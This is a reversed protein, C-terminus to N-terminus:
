VKKRLVTLSDGVAIRAVVSGVAAELKLQKPIESSPVEEFGLREYFRKRRSITTLVVEAATAAAAVGSDGQEKKASAAAAEELLRKVLEAGVGRGRWEPATVLSRLEFLRGRRGPEELEALQGFAVIKKEQRPQKREREGEGEEEEEAVLFREPNLNLPNMKESLIM